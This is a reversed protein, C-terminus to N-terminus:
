AEDYTRPRPPIFSTDVDEWAVRPGHATHSVRTTKLFREDDRRPFAPKYHAGRSEDRLRAALTIVHALELMLGLQRAFYLSQNARSGRDSLGIRSSREKLEALRELTRDLRDNQRVVTVNATM